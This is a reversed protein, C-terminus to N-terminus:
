SAVKQLPQYVAWMTAEGLIVRCSAVGRLLFESTPVDYAMRGDNVCLLPEDDLHFALPSRQLAQLWEVAEAENLPTPHLGHEVVDLLGFV